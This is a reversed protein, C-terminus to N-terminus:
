GAPAAELNAYTDWIMWEFIIKAQHCIREDIDWISGKVVAAAYPCGGGCVSIAPCDACGDMNFPFRHRWEDFMPESYIADSPSESKALEGIELPFYKKDDLGLFAQCPGIRGSPGVVIQGGVGMCDKFHVRGDIYPRVRRMVRDEYIGAERLREFAHVIRRSAYEHDLAAGESVDGARPLLLNFGMGRPRLEGIIFDVIEDMRHVTHGSLTCSVSPNLGAEQLRRFGRLASDFTGGGGM